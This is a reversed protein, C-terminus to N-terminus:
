LIENIDSTGSVYHRAPAAESSALATLHGRHKQSFPSSPCDSYQKVKSSMLYSLKEPFHSQSFTAVMQLGASPLLEIQTTSCAFLIAPESTGFRILEMLVVLSFITAMSHGDKQPLSSSTTLRQSRTVLTSMGSKCRATTASLSSTNAMLRGHSIREERQSHFRSAIASHKHTGFARRTITTRQWSADATPHGHLPVMWCAAYLYANRMPTLTGYMCRTSLADLSFKDAM